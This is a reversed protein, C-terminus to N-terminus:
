RWTSGPERRKYGTAAHVSSPRWRAGGRVTPVNDDNLADAIAQLTMGSARMATIRRQLEPMDKVAPRSQARKSRAEVLGHRTRDALRESERRSIAILARMVTSGTETATDIEPEMCLLHAGRQELGRLVVGMHAVSSCLSELRAVVLWSAEGSGLRQFAHELAPRRVRGAAIPDVERIVDILTVGRRRCALEVLRTQAELQAAAMGM